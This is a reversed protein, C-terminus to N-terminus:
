LGQEQLVTFLYMIFTSSLKCRYADFYVSMTKTALANLFTNERMMRQRLEELERAKDDNQSDM